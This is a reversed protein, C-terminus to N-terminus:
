PRMEQEISNAGETPEGSLLVGRDGGVASDVILPADRCTRVEDCRPAEGSGSLTRRKEARNSIVRFAPAQARSIAAFGTEGDARVEPLCPVEAIWRGNQDEEVGIRM